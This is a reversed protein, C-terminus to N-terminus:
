PRYREVNAAHEADTKAFVHSGDGRAVFFLYETQAPNAVAELAALGPSCIPGPPLGRQAYTNYPSALRLDDRTLDRKWFGYGLAEVLNASAVAFQVTPDAQLPMNRRLRNLYVGAITPQEAAIAAEREVISAMTVAQHLTLGNATFQQRLRPTVARDFQKVMLEALARATAGKAVEYTDPFLYGELSAGTPPQEALPLGAAAGARVLELIEDARAIGAEEIRRAAQEVRWGEPITVLQGARAAGRSLAAVVEGTTMSRSLQYDGSEIRNGVGRAEVITRFTLSSRILGAAQLDDGIQAASRGPRVTFTVRTTDDSVPADLQSVGSRVAGGLGAFGGVGGFLRYAFLGAGAVVALAILTVVLKVLTAM